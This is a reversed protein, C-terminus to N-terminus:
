AVVQEVNPQKVVTLHGRVWDYIVASKKTEWPFLRTEQGNSSLGNVGWKEDM